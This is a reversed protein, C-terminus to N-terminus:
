FVPRLLRLLLLVMLCSMRATGASSSLNVKLRLIPTPQYDDTFALLIAYTPYLSMGRGTRNYLGAFKNGLGQLYSTVAANQYAPRKFYNSFGGGPAYGNRPDFAVVEPFNKTGGVATVFPCSASFAPLFQNKSQADNSFCKGSPGVGSDGSSFLLTVGRAGLSAYQQCIRKAFPLPVTQEDDGYSTSIVQPIQAQPLNLVYNVRPNSTLPVATTSPQQSVPESHAIHLLQPM